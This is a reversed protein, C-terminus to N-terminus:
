PKESTNVFFAVPIRHGKQRHVTLRTRPTM